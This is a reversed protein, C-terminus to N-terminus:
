PALACEKIDIKAVFVREEKPEGTTPRKRVVVWLKGDFNKRTDDWNLGYRPSWIGLSGGLL